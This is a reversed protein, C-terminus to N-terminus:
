KEVLAKVVKIGVTLMVKSRARLSAGKKKLIGNDEPITGLNPGWVGQRQTVAPSVPVNGATDQLNLFGSPLPSSDARKALVGPSRIPELKLIGTNSLGSRVFLSIIISFVSLMFM